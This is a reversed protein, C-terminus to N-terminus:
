GTTDAQALRAGYQAKYYEWYEGSRLPRWWDERAVYWEVTGRLGSEFQRAPAWGLSRIRSCDLSYRRDHGPRDAVRRILAESKGLHKLILRTVELNTREEGAAVNYAEGPKGNELVTLIAQCHDEVHIWDRVQLGDGYLPLPHDELVNTIFLPILKEPFQYAGYTNSGRTILVPVQYTVFYALAMLDAAAKSASYPSSPSLPADESFSGAAISGYVEDTSVQLFREVGVRRAEELLVQTGKVDTDIFAQPSLLSRDVHTEAAFNVVQRAGSMARRVVGADCIDGFIFRFAGCDVEAGYALARSVEAGSAILEQLNAPNGAYTLKDLVSIPQGSGRSLVLRLFNSGIFGAAGTLLLGM